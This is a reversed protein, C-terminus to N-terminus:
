ALEQSQNLFLVIVLRQTNGTLLHCVPRQDYVDIHVVAQQIGLLLHHGEEVQDGRLGIDGPHGHHDVGGVPIDDHRTQLAHLSLGDDVGDRQLLSFLLEHLMGLVHFSKAGGHHHHTEVLLSLGGGVLTTDLYCRPSVSDEGFLHAHIGQVDDEVWIHQSHGCAHLFM